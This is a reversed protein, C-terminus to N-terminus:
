SASAATPAVRAYLDAYARAMADISQGRIAASARAARAAAAERDDLAHLLAATAAPVSEPSFWLAADRPVCERHPAIDSVVLPCGSAMVELVVNPRGEHRSPAVAVDASKLVAWLDRRYGPTLCRAAVGAAAVRARFLELEEGEGCLLAFARPRVRLVGGLADALLAINKPAVFRGAYVILEADDPVGLERRAAPATAAIADQEIGNPVVHVRAGASPRWLAAGAESNAVIAAASKAVLGRVTAKWGRDLTRVSRESYLWPRRALCGAVGGSFCMRGLWAQVVDIRRVRIIDFLDSVLPLPGRMGLEHAVAGSARLRPGYTGDRLYVVDVGVGLRVLGESLYTLQREAGDGRLSDICQLV